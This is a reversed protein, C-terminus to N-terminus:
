WQSRPLKQRYKYSRMDTNPPKETDCRFKTDLSINDIVKQRSAEDKFYHVDYEKECGIEWIYLKISDGKM